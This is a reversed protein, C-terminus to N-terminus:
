FFAILKSVIKFYLSTKSNFFAGYFIVRTIIEFVYTIQVNQNQYYKMPHFNIRFYKPKHYKMCFKSQHLVM